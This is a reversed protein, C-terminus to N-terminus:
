HKASDAPANVNIHQRVLLDKLGQDSTQQAVQYIRGILQRATADSSRGEAVIREAALLRAQDFQAMQVFVIQLVVCLASLSSLGVLIWFQNRNM